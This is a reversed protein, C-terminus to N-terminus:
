ETLIHETNQPVYYAMKLLLLAGFWLYSCALNDVSVLSVLTMTYGIVMSLYTSNNKSMIHQFKLKSWGILAISLFYIVAIGGVLIGCECIFQLYTNHTMRETMTYTSMNNYGVGLLPNKEWYIKICENWISFRGYEDTLSSRNSYTSLLSSFMSQGFRSMSFILFGVCVTLTALISLLKKRVSELESIAVTATIIIAIVCCLLGMRSGSLIICFVSILLTVLHYLNFKKSIKSVCATIGFIFQVFMTNPDFSFGRLRFSQTFKGNVMNNLQLFLGDDTRVNAIISETFLGSQMFFYTAIYVIGCGFCSAIFVDNLQESKSCDSCSVFLQACIYVVLTMFAAKVSAPNSNNFLNVIIILTSIIGALLQGKSASLDFQTGKNKAYLVIPLFVAFIMYPKITAGAVSIGYADIPILLWMYNALDIKKNILPLYSLVLALIIWLWIM